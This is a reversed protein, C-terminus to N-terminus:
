TAVQCYCKRIMVSKLTVLVLIYCQAKGIKRLRTVDETSLRTKYMNDSINDREVIATSQTPVLAVSEVCKIFM